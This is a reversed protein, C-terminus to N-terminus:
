VGTWKHLYKKNLYIGRLIMVFLFVAIYETRWFETFLYVSIVVVFYLLIDIRRQFVYKKRQIPDDFKTLIKKGFIREEYKFSLIFLGLIYVALILICVKMFWIM